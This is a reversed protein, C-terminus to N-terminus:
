GLPNGLHCSCASNDPPLDWLFVKGKPESGKPNNMGFAPGKSVHGWKGGFDQIERGKSFSKTKNLPETWLSTKINTM